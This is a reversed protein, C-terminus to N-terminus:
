VHMVSKQLNRGQGQVVVVSFSWIRLKSSFPFPLAVFRQRFEAHDRRKLEM